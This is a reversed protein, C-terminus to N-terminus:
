QARGRRTCVKNVAETVAQVSLDGGTLLLRSVDRVFAMEGRRAAAPRIIRAATRLTSKDVESFLNALYAAVTKDDTSITLRSSIRNESLQRAEEYAAKYLKRWMAPIGLLVFEGSTANVLSKVINLARPGLHHAEDIILCVRSVNLREVAARMRRVASAPLTEVGIAGLLAELFAMPSDGWVDSAEMMRVRSGYRGCLLRAATTKGAGSEGDVFVVRDTGISRMAELVAARVAQPGPLDDYVVEGGAEGTLTSAAEVAGRYDELRAAIDVEDLDGARIKAFEAPTGLAPYDRCLRAMGINRRAAFSAMRRALGVLEAATDTSADM